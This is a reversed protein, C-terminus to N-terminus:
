FPIDDSEDPENDFAADMSSNVKQGGSPAPAASTEGSAREIRWANLNVYFREKYENGRIDFQVKVEDGISLSDLQAIKDKVSEFKIMQPYNGDPVEVVFERKTFGSAFTQTDFLKKLTGTLEYSQSM